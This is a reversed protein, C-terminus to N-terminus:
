MKNILYGDKLGRWLPKFADFKKQLVIARFYEKLFLVGTFINFAIPRYEGLSQLYEKVLARNRIHYYRYM